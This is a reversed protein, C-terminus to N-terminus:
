PFPLPFLPCKFIPWIGNSQECDKYCDSCDMFGEIGPDFPPEWNQLMCDGLLARCVLTGPPLRRIFDAVAAAVETYISWVDVFHSALAVAGVADVAEEVTHAVAVSAAHFAPQVAPWVVYAALMGIIFSTFQVSPLSWDIQCGSQDLYSVPNSHAYLYKHLSLPIKQWGEFSDMSWFRGRDTDM